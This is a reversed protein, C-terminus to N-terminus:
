SGVTLLQKQLRAPFRPRVVIEKTFVKIQDIADDLLQKHKKSLKDTLQFAISTDPRQIWGGVIRGDAWITPGANGFQDFLLPAADPDLYWDRQKWGMTTADLGPLLRVWPEPADVPESDSPLIWGTGESQLKVEEADLAALSEKALKATWGFWAFTRPRQQALNCYGDVCYNPRPRRNPSGRSKM